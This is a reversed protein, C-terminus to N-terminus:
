GRGQKFPTATTFRRQPLDELEARADGLDNM